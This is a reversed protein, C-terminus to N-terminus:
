SSLLMKWCRSSATERCCRPLLAYDVNEYHASFPRSMVRSSVALPHMYMSPVSLGDSHPWVLERPHACFSGNEPNMILSRAYADPMAIAADMLERAPLDLEGAPGRPRGDLWARFPAPECEIGAVTCGDAGRRLRQGLNALGERSIVIDIPMLYLDARL